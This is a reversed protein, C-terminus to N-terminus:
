GYVLVFLLLDSFVGNVACCFPHRNVFEAVMSCSRPFSAGQFVTEGSVFLADVTTKVNTTPLIAQLQFVALPIGGDTGNM